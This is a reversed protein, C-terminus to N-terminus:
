EQDVTAAYERDREGYLQDYVEDDVYTVNEYSIRSGKGPVFGKPRPWDEDLLRNMHDRIQVIHERSLDMWYSDLMDGLYIQAFDRSELSIYLTPGQPDNEDQLIKLDEM